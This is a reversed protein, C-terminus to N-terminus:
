LRDTIRFTHRFNHFRARGSPPKRPMAFAKCGMGTERKQGGRDSEPCIRLPPRMMPLPGPAQGQLPELTKLRRCSCRLSRGSRLSRACEWCPNRRQLFRFGGHAPGHPPRAAAPTGAPRACASPARRVLPAPARPLPAACRPSQAAAALHRSHAALPRASRRSNRAHVRDRARANM